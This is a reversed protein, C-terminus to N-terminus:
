TYTFLSQRFHCYLLYRTLTIVLVLHPPMPRGIRKKEIITALPKFNM